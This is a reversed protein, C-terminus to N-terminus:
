HELCKRRKETTSPPLQKQGYDIDEQDDIGSGASGPWEQKSILEAFEDKNQNANENGDEHLMANPTPYHHLVPLRYQKENLIATDDCLLMMTVEEMVMEDEDKEEVNDDENQDDAVKADECQMM